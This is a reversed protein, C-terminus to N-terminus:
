NYKELIEENTPLERSIKQLHGHFPVGFSEKFWRSYRAVKHQLGHHRPYVGSKVCGACMEAPLENKLARQKFETYMPNNWIAKGDKEANLDGLPNVTGKFCCPFVRGDFSAYFTKFPEFCPWKKNNFFKTTDPQLSAFELDGKMNEKMFDKAELKKEKSEALDKIEIIEVQKDSLEGGGKHRLNAANNANQEFYQATAEYPKSALNVGYEEAIQKAEEVLKGEVEPNMISTHSHLEEILDYTQLPKVNIVNVGNEGMMKVFDPLKEIHHKFGISNVEIIPFETNAEEKAKALRRIGSTVQEFDGGLYINEYEDKTAGSFSLTIKSLKNEVLFECMDETLHMGHSFFDVMVEYKSLFQMFERFQPHITPEGYGFAHVVLAHELIEALPETNEIDFVGREAHKLNQFRKPNIASFTPCMACKLDCINSLELFVELPWEPLPGGEAFAYFSELADRKSRHFKSTNQATANAEIAQELTTSHGNNNSKFAGPFAKDRVRRLINKM